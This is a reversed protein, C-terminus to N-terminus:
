SCLPFFKRKGADWMIYIASSCSAQATAHACFAAPTHSTAIHRVSISFRSFLLLATGISLNPGITQSFFFFFYFISICPIAQIKIQHLGCLHTSPISHGGEEDWGRGVGRGKWRCVYSTLAASTTYSQSAIKIQQTRAKSASIPPTYHPTFQAHPPFFFSMLIQVAHLKNNPAREMLLIVRRSQVCASASMSWIYLKWLWCM